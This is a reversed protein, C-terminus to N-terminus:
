KAVAEKMTYARNRYVTLLQASNTGLPIEYVLGRSVKDINACKGNWVALTGGAGMVAGVVIGIFVPFHVQRRTGKETEEM